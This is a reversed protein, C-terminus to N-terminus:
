EVRCIREIVSGKEAIMHRVALPIWICVGVLLAAMLVTPLIPIKFPVGMYNMSEYIAYTAALGLTGTLLLAGAAYFVGELVLSKKMQKESMGISELIALERQRSQINGTVTNIYNLFGILVLILAMGTGVETMSGQAKEVTEAEKIRSSYSFDKAYASGDMFTLLKEETHGDYEKEYGISVKAALTESIWQKLADSSMIVTPTQGLLPGSYYSEDTMGAIEFTKRNEANAYQACTLKKGELGGDEFSLGNRYLICSKGALFAQKDPKKEMESTLCDFETEDIGIVMSAFNEPHAKYEEIDDEYPISMWTEYFERMWQDAADPEWPVIIQAGLVPHIEKIGDMKRIKESLGNDLVPKWEKNDEKKMTDNELVMDMDMYNSIMTRAGQSEILTVVCLFVSLGAALSATIFVTKKKDKWFQEKAMRVLLKGKGTRKVAKGGYAGRYGAAEVPSVSVAMKVPKRSGLYVTLGILFVTLFLVSPQFAVSIGEGGTERIGLFRIVSPVLFFSVASGALIGAALGAAGLIRMQRNILRYMQRGSMGITRLLGYYRINGSVALYLINYILLWACICTVLAIGAMGAAIEVSHGLNEMFILRQAKSLDMSETFSEQEEQTMVLKDFKMYFRGSAADSLQYGCQEYFSRSVYFVAKDGYGDWIGSIIFRRESTREKGDVYVAEFTDGIGLGSFGCKKLAEETVMVEDAKKPYSGRILTRAPEMFENWFTEDAWICGVDVTSDQKTKEIYGAVAAIGTQAIDPFARATEKQKDTVGFLVADFEGGALRVNQIRQMKIYTLGITFVSFLMFASLLVALFVIMSRRKNSRLARKAMKDIIKLNNNALM